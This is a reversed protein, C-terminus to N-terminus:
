FMTRASQKEPSKPPKSIKRRLRESNEPCFHTRVLELISCWQPFQLSHFSAESREAVWWDNVKVSIHQIKFITRVCKAAAPSSSTGGRFGSFAASGCRHFSGFFGNFVDARVMKQNKPFSFKKIM